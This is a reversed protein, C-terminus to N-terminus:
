IRYRDFGPLGVCKLFQPWAPNHSLNSATEYDWMAGNFIRVLASFSYFLLEEPNLQEDHDVKIVPWRGVSPLDGDHQLFGTKGIVNM